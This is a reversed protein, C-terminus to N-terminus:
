IGAAVRRYVEVTLRATNNWSLAAARQQGRRELEQRLDPASLVDALAEAIAAPREGDFLRAASGAVEPLSSGNACAVATGCAMAEIVPLGFGEHLSPLVFLEAGAYLAPLDTEDVPGLFRVDNLGLRRVTQESQPFRPDRQGALVLEGHFVGSRRLEAWAEILRPLNKHPRDVGVYLVYPQDLRLRQRLAEIATPSQPAFQKSAAAPTVTIKQSSIGFHTALEDKAAQTLTLIHRARRLALRMALRWALRASLTPLPWRAPIADYVTVVWPCPMRYATLYFPAHFLDLDLSRAAAPLSFQHGLGRLPTPCPVPEFGAPAPGAGPHQLLRLREGEAAAPLASLLGRLYRGIGPYSPELYRGDIGITLSM